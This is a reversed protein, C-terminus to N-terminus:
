RTLDTLILSDPAEPIRMDAQPPIPMVPRRVTSQKDVSDFKSPNYELGVIEYSNNSVEKVSMTRFLQGELIRESNSKAAKLFNIEGFSTINSSSFKSLLSSSAILDIQYDSVKSVVWPQVSTAWKKDVSDYQYVVNIYDDFDGASDVVGEIFIEQLNKIKVGHNDILTIRIVDEGISSSESPIVEISEIDVQQYYGSNLLDQRRENLTKSALDSPTTSVIQSSPNGIRGKRSSAVFYGLNNKQVILYKRGNLIYTSGVSKSLNKEYIFLEVLEGNNYLPVVWGNATTSESYLSFFFWYQNKLTESTWVWGSGAGQEENTYFWFGDDSTAYKMAEIYIWGLLDSLIYDGRTSPTYIFGLWSSKKWLPDALGAGTFNLKNLVTLSLEQDSKASLLGKASWASGIMIKELYGRTKLPDEPCVYHVGGPNGLDDFGQNMINVESGGLSLSIKFTHKSSDKIFYASEVKKRTMLGLPLTGESTFRVRDGDKLGHNFVSFKNDPLSLSFPIKILFNEAVVNQGQPGVEESEFEYNISCQFKAIQPTSISEIEVDQDLSSREFPARADIKEFTSNPLGLQVSLEVSSVFPEDFMHKDLLIYPNLQSSVQKIVRVGNVEESEYIKRYFNIDLIRGSKSKGARMEDSVEFISGPFLYSAEQSTEFSVTELELQSTLLVWRALRRAQTTSTVGFGLTEKEKFGITQISNPDEEQVVSPKFNNSRDNYRVISSTIRQDKSGGAYSFGKPSVNSNNFIQIPNKQSDQIAMIKGNYYTIIGRFISAMNNILTLSGMRDTLYLNSTFRPEVLPHNLQVACAGVVKKKGSEQFSVSLNAFSPGSVVISGGGNKNPHSSVIFREEILVEGVKNKSRERLKQLELTKKSGSISNLDQLSSAMFFAVKKGRFSTEKGFDKIFLDSSYASEDIIITFNQESSSSASSSSSFEIPLGSFTEAPYETSVLEDCYKSIKYLQWKDIDFESLGHKGVGYRANHLLDYFVWAPNDSWFKFEDSISHVSFSSDAQGKFLGDWPGSYTKSIPDYNSPILIKKLKALYAREPLSSFNKSDFKMKCISSHPYLFPEDIYESISKLSISRSVGIGGTAGGKASPDMENSLKVFKFSVGKSKLKPQSFNIGIDFAYTSSCLGEITFYEEGSTKVEGGSPFVIKCESSPDLVNFEQNDKEMLIAFRVSESSTTGDNNQRSITCNLEARIRTISNNVVMHSAVKANNAIAEKASSREADGNPNNHYPSAGYLLLDYDVVFSSSNSIVTSESEEGKQLVPAEGNENLIYNLSGDAQNNTATNKIPVNNLYIGARLDNNQIKDKKDLITEANQNVLGEIPGESLLDLFEIETYSELVHAKDGLMKRKSTKDQSINTTGIKLLGYGIPVSVGQATRNQRGSMLYSKTTTPDKREPPKFLSKMIAGVVFSIAVAIVIKGVITGAFKTFIAMTVPDSGRVYPIVHLDKKSKFNFTKETITAQKLEKESKIEEPARNLMVYEVGEKEKKLLYNLFGESNCEIAEFAEQPSQVNLEWKKSFRKGLKGHLYVTKM